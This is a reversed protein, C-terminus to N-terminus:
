DDDRCCVVFCVDCWVGDDVVDVVDVVDDVDVDVDDVDVDDDVAAIARRTEAESPYPLGGLEKTSGIVM